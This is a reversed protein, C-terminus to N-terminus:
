KNNNESFQSAFFDAPTIGFGNVCIDVLEDATLRITGTELASIRQARKGTKRSIHAMTIGRDERYERLMQNCPKM